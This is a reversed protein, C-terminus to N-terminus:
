PYRVWARRANVPEAESAHAPATGMGTHATSNNQRHMLAPYHATLLQALDQPTPVVLAAGTPLTRGPNNALLDPNVQAFAKRMFDDNFPLKPLVRRMVRDLNEGRLITVTPRTPGGSSEAVPEPRDAKALLKAVGPASASSDAAQAPAWLHLMAMAAWLLAIPRIQSSLTNM